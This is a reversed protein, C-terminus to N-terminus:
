AKGVLMFAIVLAYIVLSEILVLGLIMPTFLKDRAGPNRAIGEVAAATARGQGMGGGFAAIGIALGAGLAAAWNSGGAAAAAGAKAAFAAM